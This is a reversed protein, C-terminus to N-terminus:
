RLHRALWDRVPDYVEMEAVIRAPAGDGYAHDLPLHDNWIALSKRRLLDHRPHEAQYPAPVRKLEPPDIRHGADRLADLSRALDAGAGAAVAARWPDLLAKPFAFCGYGIVLSDAQLGFLWGLPADPESFGIHVHTNYPTKDRSFRVDRHIRFIKSDVPTRTRASMLDRFTAAFVKAPDAVRAKYRDRNAQFWDRTNTEALDSLFRNTDTSFMPGGKLQGMM